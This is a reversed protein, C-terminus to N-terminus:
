DSFRGIPYQQFGLHTNKHCTVQGREKLKNPRPMHSGYKYSWESKQIGFRWFAVKDVYFYPARLTFIQCAPVVESQLYYSCTGIQGFM